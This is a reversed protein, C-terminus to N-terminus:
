TARPLSATIVSGDSRRVGETGWPKPLGPIRDGHGDLAVVLPSDPIVRV